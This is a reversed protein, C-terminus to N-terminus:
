LRHKCARTGMSPSKVDKYSTSVLSVFKADVDKERGGLVYNILYKLNGEELSGEVDIVKGVGGLKNVGPWTRKAVEVIAGVHFLEKPPSFEDEPNSEDSDSEDTGSSSSRQASKRSSTMQACGYKNDDKRNEGSCNWCQWDKLRAAEKADFGVCGVAVNYWQDCNDCLIWFVPIPNPHVKGCVCGNYAEEETDVTTDMESEDGDMTESDGENSESDHDNNKQKEFKVTDNERHDNVINTKNLGLSTSEKGASISPTGIKGTSFQILSQVIENELVRSPGDNISEELHLNMNLTEPQLPTMEIDNGIEQAASSNLKDVNSGTVPYSYRCVNEGTTEEVNSYFWVHPSKFVESNNKNELTNQAGKERLEAHKTKSLQQSFNRSEKNSEEYCAFPSSLTETNRIQSTTEERKQSIVLVNEEPHIETNVSISEILIEEDTIQDSKKTKDILTKQFTETQEHRAEDTNGIMKSKPASNLPEPKDNMEHAKEDNIDDFDIWPTEIDQNKCRALVLILESGCIEVQTTFELMNMGGVLQGNLCLIIDRVRLGCNVNISQGGGVEVASVAPSCPSICEVICAGGLDCRAIEFGWPRQALRDRSLHLVKKNGPDYFGQYTPLSLPAMSFRLSTISPFRTALLIKDIDMQESVGWPNTCSEWQPKSNPTAIKKEYLCLPNNNPTCISNPTPNVIKRSPTELSLLGKHVNCNFKNRENIKENEREQVCNRESYNQHQKPTECTNNTKINEKSDCRSQGITSNLITVDANKSGRIQSCQLTEKSKDLSLTAESIKNSLFMKSSSDEVANCLCEGMGSKQSTNTERQTVTSAKIEPGFSSKKEFKSVHNLTRSPKFLLRKENRQNKPLDVIEDIKPSQKQELILLRKRWLMKCSGSHVTRKAVVGKEYLMTCYVCNVKIGVKVREVINIDYKPHYKCLLHHLLPTNARDKMDPTSICHICKTPFTPKIKKDKFVNLSNIAARKNYYYKSMPCKSDHTVKVNFSQGRDIVKKCRRCGLRLGAKYREYVIPEIEKKIPCLFHHDKTKDGNLCRACQFHLGMYQTSKRIEKGDKKEIIKCSENSNEESNTRSSKTSPSQLTFSVNKVWNEKMANPSLEKTEIPRKIMLMLPNEQSRNKSSWAIVDEYAAEKAGDQLNCIIDGKQIGLLHAQSKEQVVEVACAKAPTEIINVGLPKPSTFPIVHMSYHQHKKEPYPENQNNEVKKTTFKGQNDRNKVNEKSQTPADSKPTVPIGHLKWKNAILPKMKDKKREKTNKSKSINKAPHPPTLMLNGGGDADLGSLANLTQSAPSAVTISVTDKQYEDDEDDCDNTYKNCRARKSTPTQITNCIDRNLDKNSNHKDEKENAKKKFLGTMRDENRELNSKPGTSRSTDTESLLPLLDISGADDTDEFDDSFEDNMSTRSSIEDSDNCNRM